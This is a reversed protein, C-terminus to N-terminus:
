YRKKSWDFTDNVYKAVTYNRIQSDDYLSEAKIINNYNNEEKGSGLDKGTGYVYTELSDISQM